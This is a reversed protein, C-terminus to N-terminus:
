DIEAAQYAGLEQDQEMQHTLETESHTADQEPETELATQLDKQRRQEMQRQLMVYTDRLKRPTEHKAPKFDMKKGWSIGIKCDVNIKFKRVVGDAGTYSIEPKLVDNLMRHIFWAMGEFDDVPYQFVLSDHVQALLQAPQFDPDNLGYAEVMGQETIDGVTSQPKFSYVANFLEQGWESLLRVKRGFCNWLCRDNKRLDEVEKEHWKVLGPYAAIRYLTVIKEADAEDMENELAFRRYKMDYNLGHNSKKGAQRISMSRPLFFEGELLQPIQKRLEEIVEPDTASDVIKHELAVLEEPAGSILAGTVVHPSKGSEVVNIMNQDGTLYAVVVWEAGALDFEILMYGDDAVLFDKFKPDLNQMNMGTDYVTKGSSLRGTWTGRPNWSCRMRHDADFTIDLYTGKLKKLGRLEQILKAVRDNYRRYIRALAKDDTTPNGTKGLYPHYGKDKYFHKACQKPSDPNLGPVAESLEAERKAIEGEVQHKTRDLGELDVKMGRMNMFMLPDTMAVTMDYTARFDGEDMEKELLEWSELAVCGDKGNYNWFQRIDGGLGKWMKGEDKYYPEDTYISTIFDLGKKFDPYMIHQAIMTDGFPGVTHINNKELLFPADFGIINQNVKMITPDQMLDAYSSWLQMEDDFDWYPDQAEHVLPVVMAENPHYCLCFCHVQHNVVEIDTAFRGALKCQGMYVQAERLSPEVIINRKPLRLEPFTMNRKVKEMDNIIIHRWVYVGHITAAPHITPILKKGCPAQLISGRWKTIPIKKGMMLALAPGGMSMVVNAGCREIKELAPQAEQLGFETFGTRDKWLLMHANRDSNYPYYGGIREDKWVRFPWTNVIYCDRRSLGATHLCTNFVDGAPGVLPEQLKVEMGGPAEGLVAIPAGTDGAEGPCSTIKMLRM